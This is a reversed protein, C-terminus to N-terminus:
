RPYSPGNHGGRLMISIGKFDYKWEDHLSYNKTASMIVHLFENWEDIELVIAKILKEEKEARSIADEIDDLITRKYYVVEM